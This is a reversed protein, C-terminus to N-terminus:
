PQSFVVGLVVCVEVCDFEPVLVCVLETVDVSDFELVLVCVDVKDAEPLEVTVEETVLVTVVAVFLRSLHALPPSITTSNSSPLPPALVAAPFALSQM